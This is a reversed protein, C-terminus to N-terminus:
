LSGSQWMFVFYSGTNRRHAICPSPVFSPVKHHTTVDKKRQSKSAEVESLLLTACCDRPLIGFFAYVPLFLGFYESRFLVSFLHSDNLLSRRRMEHSNFFREFFM